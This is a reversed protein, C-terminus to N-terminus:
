HVDAPTERVAAPAPLDAAGRVGLDRLVQGAVVDGGADHRGAGAPCRSGGAGGRRYLVVGRGAAAVATLSAQLRPGCGCSSSGFADGALCEDHVRVPVDRGAVDGHVLALHERGDLPDRYSVTTFRGAPLSVVAETGREVSREHRLRYAVLDGTSVVQLGHERAFATLEAGTAMRRPDIGSVLECLVGAPPLGAVAALDVATEPRGPSDLVGAARARLPVVHGPRTLDAPTTEPAALLRVTATRDTASIGTGVGAAADVAVCQAPGTRGPVALPLDLRDADADTIAVQVFGSTHRVLFAMAQPTACAAALVLDGGRGSDVVVPRGRAVDALATRVREVPGAPAPRGDRRRGDTGPRPGALVLPAATM